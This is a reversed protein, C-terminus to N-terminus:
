FEGRLGIAPLLPIGTNKESETYDYNHSVGFVPANAYVNSIDLYASLRWTNFDWRRDLRLDLQHAAELRDSNVAGHVPRWLGVDSLFVSGIVPTMPTGTSYHFRGGLRWAGLKWSAVLTLNHMQDGDFLRLPMGPADRRESRSLTYSIWGFFNDRKARLIMEAGFSRGSGDNSYNAVPDTSMPTRSTVVLDRLDSYFGTTSLEFGAGLGVDTGLVYHLAREPDLHTALSEASVGLSRAYQGIAGRLAVRDTVQVTANLRPSVVAADYRDYYDARVGPTIRVKEIPDIDVAIYSSTSDDRHAQDAEILPDTTFSSEDPNGEGSPAPMRIRVDGMRLTLDGGARLGLWSTPRWRFDDRVSTDISDFEIWHTANLDQDYVVNGVSAVARNEVAGAQYRWTVASRWFSSTSTFEGSLAPDEPNEASTDFAMRDFSGLTLWTIRHGPLSAPEYDVRLQGDYYFPPASFSVKSDDPIILPFLADVFSRRFGLAFRLDGNETIPGALYGAANIFSVEAFGGLHDSEPTRTKIHVVGGTAHGHEVGFGGPLFEIEDILEAPVISQVDGFHNAAPIEVGDILFVSAEPATGRVVISGSLASSQVFGSGIGPLSRIAQVPDGRSGPATVLEVRELETQGPAVVPPPARGTIEIVEGGTGTLLETDPQLRVDINGAGRGDLEITLQVSQYLEALVSVTVTPDSIEPFAFRGDADTIVAHEGTDEHGPITVIAGPVPESTSADRVVGGVPDAAATSALTLALLLALTTAARRTASFRSRSTM